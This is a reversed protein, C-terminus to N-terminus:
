SRRRARAHQELRGAVRWAPAGESPRAAVQRAASQQAALALAVAIVAVREEEAGIGDEGPTRGRKAGGSEDDVAKAGVSSCGSGPGIAGTGAADGQADAPQPKGLVRGMLVIFLSVVVLAGFVVSMGIATAYWGRGQSILELTESM